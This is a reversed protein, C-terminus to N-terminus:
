RWKAVVKPVFERMPYKNDYKEIHFFINNVIGNLSLKDGFFNNRGPLHLTSSGGIIYGYRIEDFLIRYCISRGVFGKPKSYHVGMYIKLDADTKKVIELQIQM